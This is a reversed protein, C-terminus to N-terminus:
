LMEFYKDRAKEWSIGTDLQYQHKILNAVHISYFINELGNSYNRAFSDTLKNLSIKKIKERGWFNLYTMEYVVMIDSDELLKLNKVKM